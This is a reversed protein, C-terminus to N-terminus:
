CFFINTSIRPFGHELYDAVFECLNGCIMKKNFRASDTHAKIIHSSEHRGCYALACIVDCRLSISEGEAHKLALVLTDVCRLCVLLVTGKTQVCIEVFLRRTSDRPIQTLAECPDREPNARRVYFRM